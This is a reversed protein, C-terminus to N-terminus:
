DCKIFERPLCEDDRDCIVDQDTITMKPPNEIEKYTLIDFSDRFKIDTQQSQSFEM